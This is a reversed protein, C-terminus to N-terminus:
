EALAAEVEAVTFGLQFIKADPDERWEEQWRPGPDEPMGHEVVRHTDDTLGTEGAALERVPFWAMYNEPEVLRQWSPKWQEPPFAARVVDYDARTNLVKPYGIM